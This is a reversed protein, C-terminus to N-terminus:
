RIGANRQERRVYAIIHEARQPSVDAIPPMNGFHWHHQRVGDKIAWHFTLDAHHGPRYVHHMLPPGQDTGTGKEGHCRACHAHFLADGRQPDAVFSPEPLHQRQRVQESDPTDCGTLIVSTIGLLLFFGNKTM